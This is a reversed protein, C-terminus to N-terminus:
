IIYNKWLDDKIDRDSKIIDICENLINKDLVKENSMLNNIDNLIELRMILNNIDSMFYGFCKKNVRIIEEIEKRKINIKWNDLKDLLFTVMDNIGYSNIRLIFPFRRKLGQNTNFFCRNIDNEYGAIICVFNSGEQLNHTITDLCEKSFMDRNERDGLSYVEDLLLIGDKASDIIKQTKIATEGLYRGILDSRKAMVINNTKLIGLNKLIRSLHKSITTKGVGSQGYIAFNLFRNKNPSKILYIIINIIEQKIKDIGKMKNLEILDNHIMAFPKLKLKHYFKRHRCNYILGIKIVDDINLKTKKNLISIIEGSLPKIVNCQCISVDCNPINNIDINDNTNTDNIIKKSDPIKISLKENQYKEFSLKASSCYSLMFLYSLYPIIRSKSIKLGNDYDILIYPDEFINKIKDLFKIAINKQESITSGIFIETSYFLRHYFMLTTTLDLKDNIILPYENDKTKNMYEIIKKVNNVLHVDKELDDNSSFIFPILLSTYKTIDSNKNINVHFNYSKNENNKYKVLIDDLFTLYSPILKMKPTQNNLLRVKNLVVKIMLLEHSLLTNSKLIFEFLMNLHYDLIYLIKKGYDNKSYVIYYISQLAIITFNISYLKNKRNMNNKSKEDIPKLLDLDFCIHDSEHFINKNVINLEIDIYSLFIEMLKDKLEPYVNNKFLNQLSYICLSNYKTEYYKIENNRIFGKHKDNSILKKLFSYHDM